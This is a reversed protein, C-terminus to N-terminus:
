LVSPPKVLPDHNASESLQMYPVSDQCHGIKLDQCVCKASFSTHVKELLFRIYVVEYIVRRM